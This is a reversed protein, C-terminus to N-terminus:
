AFLSKLAALSQEGAIQNDEESAEIGAGIRILDDEPLEDIFRSPTTSSTEGFQTRQRASTMTLTRQARTIGVYALRREEEIQGGDVSNKHPLIGEEMGIMFVHLFELGKAAHLTLLQVKDDASEEQERDLIDRLILKSIANEIASDGNKNPEDQQDPKLAQTLQALLFNVNDWRKQAVPDSSANQHLWGLYDADSLMENVAAIPNGSYINKQVGTIWSKFAKLRELNNAPMSASLAVEDIAAYMSLGRKNAYDGLRELTTPGIQRRPTNIIRLLANDDDTNIVLRLYAMVDKIETKAYFSQGGTIEYPISQTQLKIEVLKAQYNGRYLVAFDSYKCRRKLRMDIIENVVRECETDENESTIFRLPDGPGLESWLTKPILHPNNDILKNAAGLIRGTSRYNQELKVIELSPFDEQLQMLNEPRAGRWAYISQDDDGVVTLAQKENVLTKVLEYQALNTDQYEDVLLYRIRRQWKALVEPHQRFLMVPTMILDDFDVANYAKLARQYREYLMAISQEGTSNAVSTANGPELLANKWNSITNQVTDILKDDLESHRVLLEKLLNRCDEQDLISFGSKFGLTKIETRIITLGLNHFTSVTLGKSRQASLLNSVRAKMERAAKNTFTVAAINRAPIDCHEVLYAIKQTIVSTKGSGAGALVLLPGDIYKLAAQQQPNLDQTM